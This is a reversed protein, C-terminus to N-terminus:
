PNSKCIEDLIEMLSNYMETPNDTLHYYVGGSIVALEDWEWDEDTSFIYVKTKPTGQIAQMVDLMQLAIGEPTKLYAQPEEDTFVIIIKEADPRWEIKFDDHHPISEAVSYHMWDLKSVPIPLSASINQIALYIADLLMESAGSMDSGLSSMAALFDSFGSMNHYLELIDDGWAVNLEDRPGLITAWQLVTEDSYTAAFQNLAILVASIEDSMSGSWDIIFLIDTDELEKGYDTIGDCDNDVGDCIEKQPTIEGKCYGPTFLGTNDDTHGWTGTDCTMEGPICIGIGITGEPGTYCSAFLDEDILQNCNDDFNNCMEQQLPMGILPDCLPDAGPPSAMWYCPAYCSTTVITKCDPDLCECTKFGQGCLLPSDQCPFLTGVDQITCVCQLDEDIQGDCDNDLGDCIEDFVPPANCSVWNGDVCTEYGEGCATSCPSILEEDVSGDCDDDIGNCSEDPLPGCQLCANLQGEDVEGDCDNDLGDCIEEEPLDAMCTFEGAVCLNPGPGCGNDCVWEGEDVIGNCNDDVNNCLEEIGSFGEDIEEDCDNDLGDCIEEKCETECNTYQIQGKTCVKDQVGPYGDETTCPLETEILYQSPDCQLYEKCEGEHLIAPPDLCYDVCIQKQWVSDLPPCFYWQCQVCPNNPFPYVLSPDVVEEEVADADSFNEEVDTPEILTNALPGNDKEQCSVLFTALALLVLGKKLVDGM